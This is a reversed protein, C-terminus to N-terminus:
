GATYQTHKFWRRRWLLVHCRCCGYNIWCPKSRIDETGSLLLCRNHFHYKQSQPSRLTTSAIHPEQNDFLAPLCFATTCGLVVWGSIIQSFSGSDCTVSSDCRETCPSLKCTEPFSNLSFNRKLPTARPLTLIFNPVYWARVKPPVSYHIKNSCLCHTCFQSFIRATLFRISSKWIHWPLPFPLLPPTSPDHCAWDDFWTRIAAASLSHHLKAFCVVQPM